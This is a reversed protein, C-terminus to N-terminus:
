DKYIIIQIIISNLAVIKSQLRKEKLNSWFLMFWDLVKKMIDFMDKAETNNKELEEKEEKTDLISECVNCKLNVTTTQLCKMESSYIWTANDVSCEHLSNQETNENEKCSSLIFLFLIAFILFIKKNM